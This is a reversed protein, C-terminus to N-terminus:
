RMDRCYKLLLICVCISEVVWYVFRLVAMLEIVVVFKYRTKKLERIVQTVQSHTRTAFVIKPIDTTKTEDEDITTNNDGFIWSLNVQKDKAHCWALTACLLAM